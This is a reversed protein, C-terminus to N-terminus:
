GKSTASVYASSRRKLGSTGDAGDIHLVRSLSVITRFLETINTDDKASCELVKVRCKLYCCFKLFNINKEQNIEKKPQQMHIPSNKKKSHDLSYSYKSQVSRLKPLECFVWESVDGIQVERHTSALDLKNGAVVIPIEQVFFLCLCM